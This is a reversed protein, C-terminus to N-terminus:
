KINKQLILFYFSSFKFKNKEEYQPQTNPKPVFINFSGYVYLKSDYIWYIYMRRM